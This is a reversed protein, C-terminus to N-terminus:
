ASRAPGSLTIGLNTCGLSIVTPQLVVGVFSTCLVITILHMHVYHQPLRPWFIGVDAARNAIFSELRDSALVVKRWVERRLLYRNLEESHQQRVWAKVRLDSFRIAVDHP